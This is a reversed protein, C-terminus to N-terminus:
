FFYEATPAVSSQAGSPAPVLLEQPVNMDM